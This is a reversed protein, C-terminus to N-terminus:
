ALSALLVRDRAYTLLRAAEGTDTWRVEDVESAPAAEGGVPEMLWWRVRKPRGKGDVYSTAPLEDGLMCRLTTEEEVERLACAEDSEGPEAKGKPFTWDDYRPRHVLLVEPGASGRRVVLGGAARV